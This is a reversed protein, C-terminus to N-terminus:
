SKMSREKSLRAIRSKLLDMLMMYMDDNRLHMFVVFLVVSMIGGVILQLGYGNITFTLFYSFVSILLSILFYPLFDKIQELYGFKFIKGTYYTNIAIAIQTYIVSSVCMAVIGIQASVFIMVLSITKKLIELRLFLDSKGIVQLLSLNISCIFDFMYAFCLIRLYPVCPLWKDSVLFGVAPEAVAILTFMIFFIVMASMKLYKRYVEGLRNRDDQLQSLVPFMVTHIISMFTGSPLEAYGNARTYYGLDSSTYFKGVILPAMQSYIRHLLNSLLLKGGFNFLEKFSKGSFRCSPWWKVLLIKLFTSLLTHVIGQIALSWVALGYYAATIGAIGSILASLVNVIASDKFRLEYSLIATAVGGISGIPITLCITRTLPTLIPEEYFAAIFPAAVFMVVYVVLSTIINFYFVTAKDTETRDPKRVLATSFGCDVFADSISKFVTVMAILGYDAPSLLRALVIGIAFTTTQTVIRSISTWKVGKFSEEKVSVGM